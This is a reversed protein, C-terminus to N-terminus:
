AHGGREKATVERRPERQLERVLIKSEGGRQGRLVGHRRAQEVDAPALQHFGHGTAPAVLIARLGRRELFLARTHIEPDLTCPAPRIRPRRMATATSTVMARRTPM